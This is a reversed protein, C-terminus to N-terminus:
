KMKKIITAQPNIFKIRRSQNMKIFKKYNNAQKMGEIFSNIILEKLIGEMAKDNDNM